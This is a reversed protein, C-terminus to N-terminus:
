GRVWRYVPEFGVLAAGVYPLTAVWPRRRTVAKPSAISITATM